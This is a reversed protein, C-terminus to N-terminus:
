LKQGDASFAITSTAGLAANSATFGNNASLTGPFLNGKSLQKIYTAMPTNTDVIGNVVTVAITSVGTELFYQNAAAALQRADNTLTKEISSQRVKQFAPIAMAALLGIIVVVIMIEVLTFGQTKRTKMNTHVLNVLSNYSKQRRGFLQPLSTFCSRVSRLSM